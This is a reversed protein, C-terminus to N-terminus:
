KELINVAVEVVTFSETDGDLTEFVVTGKDFKADTYGFTIIDSDASMLEFENPALRMTTFLVGSKDVFGYAKQLLDAVLTKTLTNMNKNKTKQEERNQLDDDSSPGSLAVSM